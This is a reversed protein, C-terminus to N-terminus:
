STPVSTSTTSSTTTTTTTTTTTPATTTPATTATTGTTTSGTTTPATTTPATTTPATTTPATTTPATTTPATTTPATTTPPTSSTTNPIPVAPPTAQHTTTPSPATTSTPTAATAATTTSGARSTTTSPARTAPPGTTTPEPRSTPKTSTSTSPTPTPTARPLTTTPRAPSTPKKPPANTTTTTSSAPKTVVQDYRLREGASLTVVAAIPITGPRAFSLTYTGPAVGDVEYAGPQPINASTVTYSTTGSALSVTVQGVGNGSADDVTGYVVATALQMTVDLPDAYSIAAHRAGGSPPPAGLVVQRTVTQLGPRSFTVQYTGPVALGNLQYSGLALPASGDHSPISGAKGGAGKGAIVSVTTTSISLQGDTVTVNVGGAPGGGALGVKGSISGTAPILVVSQGRFHEGKKLQVTVTQSAYGPATVVITFTGPTPLNRLVFTGVRGRSLSVTSSTIPGGATAATASVTVSGLPGSTSSVKGAISGDGPQLFLTVGTDNEGSALTVRENTAAYGPKTVVLEYSAPTPVNALVFNGAADTSTWSVTAPQPGGSEVRVTAAGPSPGSVVGSITAPLGFVTADIGSLTQRSSVVVPSAGGPTSSDPYWLPSFGAGQFEVKYPGPALGAFSYHGQQNTAASALPMTLDAAEYLDVTVGGVGQSSALTIDGALSGAGTGGSAGSQASTSAQLAQMVANSDNASATGLQSLTVTLVAAFVTAAALFGILALHGRTLWPRQVFSGFSQASTGNRAGGVVQVSLPRVKPSGVWPRAASLGIKVAKTDGPDLHLVPPWFTFGVKAEDDTAALEVDETTNGANAVLAVLSARRGASVSAPDLKLSIAPQAPVELDLDVIQASWPATLEKVEVSVRRSGAPSGKPFNVALLATGTSAPFLSLKEKDLRAWQSDAGLVRLSHGSILEETNFVQITFVVAQGPTATASRPSAEVRM